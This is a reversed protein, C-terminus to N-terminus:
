PQTRHEARLVARSQDVEALKLSVLTRLWEPIPASPGAVMEMILERMFVAGSALTLMVLGFFFTAWGLSKRAEYVGPATAVRPLLWPASAVGAMITLVAVM